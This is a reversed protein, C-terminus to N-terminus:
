IIGSSNKYKIAHSLTSSCAKHIQMKRIGVPMGDGGGRRGVWMDAREVGGHKRYEMHIRDCERHEVHMRDCGRHKAYM